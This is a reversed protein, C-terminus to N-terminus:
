KEIFITSGLTDAIFLFDYEDSNPDVTSVDCEHDHNSIMFFHYIGMMRYIYICIIICAYM